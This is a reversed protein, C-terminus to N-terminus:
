ISKEFEVEVNMYGNPLPTIKLSGDVWRGSMGAGALDLLDNLWTPMGTNTWAFDDYGGYRGEYHDMITEATADTIGRFILKFRRIPTTSLNQYDKKFSESTTIINNFVPDYLEVESPKTSFDDAAM